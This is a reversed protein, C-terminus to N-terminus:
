ASRSRGSGSLTWLNHIVFWSVCVKVGIGILSVIMKQNSSSCIKELEESRKEPPTYEVMSLFLVLEQERHDDIGWPVPDGHENREKAGSKTM